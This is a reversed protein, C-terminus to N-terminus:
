TSLDPSLLEFRVRGLTHGLVLSTHGHEDTVGDIASGDELHAIYRQNPMPKHTQQHRLVFREDTQVKTDAVASAMPSGGGPGTREVSAAKIVHKGTSQQTITGNAWDTQAGNSIIQVVPAELRIGQAAILNIQVSSKVEVHGHHTEVSVNGRGAVLKIGLEHAFASISRAARVFINRGATIESDGASAVNVKKESGLAINDASALVIGAPASMAVMPVGCGGAGVAVNSGADWRKLKDALEALRGTGEDDAHQEALKALEDVMGQMVEVLGILGERGLQTGEAEHDPEATLLVGQGGRIAVAGDSRLEAGEGRPEGSGNARPHALWGLNLQSAGHDSALQASIQGRTDDFRLQNGREGAIERSKIGSLSRNGPLGGLNSLAPPEGRQNFVQSLIVPRDPDGGLFAVVVETGVRPLGLTGCQRQSGPGSGAWNSAVRVWASDVPTDSAGAGHAHKHDAARMGPFRIKVRGLEDCHVEENPPGVVVASQLQPHPLDVRPDFDPVIPVSRRVATFRIRMLDARDVDENQEIPLPGDHLRLGHAFLQGARATLDRPLNNRATVELETIIFEREAPPHTDIEPHGSLTFYEGACFDRLCGEGHFCKVDLGHRNMRLQGLRWHDEVDNGAHPIEVLYDDLSAALQNGNSGQDYTARASATMFQTGLPNKYDWSHRTVSGPQLTRAATWSTIVDRQDTADERHYRVTGALDSSCV